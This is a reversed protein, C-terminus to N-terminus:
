DYPGRAFVDAVGNTDSSVLNDADSWFGVYRGGSSVVGAGSGADEQLGGPGVSVLLTKHLTRDRVFVDDFGNTGPPVLNLAASTFIVFRGGGSISAGFCDADAQLGASSISSRFTKHLTRDRVFVDEHTNTDGSVLNDASSAFAVYRGDSSISPDYSAGDSQGLAGASVRTTTHLTRDRVFIDEAGNTDGAVLTTAGSDFAVYRGDASISPDISGENGQVGATSISSRFTKHLVRDRVFVDSSTNTDGSVLNDAGSDFAIYRGDSSISPDYSAGDSQGLAGTSVRTTTHLTRDRVFIDSLGNTDNPVLNSAISVFAVYRGDASISPLDSDGNAQVGTTSVSVRYTKHLKRDRVFIDRASNTDGSVLNSAASSFAVYRGDASLSPGDSGGNAQGM